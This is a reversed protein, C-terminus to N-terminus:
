NGAEVFGCMALIGRMKVGMESSYVSIVAFRLEVSSSQHANHGSLTM